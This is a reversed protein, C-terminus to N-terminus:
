RVTRLLRVPCAQTTARVTQAARLTRSPHATGWGGALDMLVAKGQPLTYLIVPTQPAGAVPWTERSRRARCMQTWKTMTVHQKSVKGYRKVFECFMNRM